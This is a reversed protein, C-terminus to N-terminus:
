QKEKIRANVYNDKSKPTWKRMVETLEDVRSKDLNRNDRSKENTFESKTM